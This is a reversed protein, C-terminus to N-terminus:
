FTFVATTTWTKNWLERLGADALFDLLMINNVSNDKWVIGGTIGRMMMPKIYMIPLMKIREIKSRM